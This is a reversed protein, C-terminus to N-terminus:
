TRTKNRNQVGPERGPSGVHSQRGEFVVSKIALSDWSEFLFIHPGHHHLYQAPSFAKLESPARWFNQYFPVWSCAKRGDDSGHVTPKIRLRNAGSLPSPAKVSHLRTSPSPSHRPPSTRLNSRKEKQKRTAIPHATEEVVTSMPELSFTLCGHISAGSVKERISVSRRCCKTM